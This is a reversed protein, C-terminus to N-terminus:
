IIHFSVGNFILTDGRILFNAFWFSFVISFFLIMSRNSHHSRKVEEMRKKISKVDKAIHVMVKVMSNMMELMHIESDETDTLEEEEEDPEEIEEIEEKENPHANDKEKDKNTHDNHKYNKFDECSTSTDENSEKKDELNDEDTEEVNEEEDYEIKKVCKEKENKNYPCLSPHILSYSFSSEKENTNETIMKLIDTEWRYENDTIITSRPSNPFFGFYSFGEESPYLKNNITSAM